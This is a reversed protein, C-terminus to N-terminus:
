RRPAMAQGNGEEGEGVPPSPQPPPLHNRFDGRGERIALYTAGWSLYVLGLAPTLKWPAPRAFPPSGHKM